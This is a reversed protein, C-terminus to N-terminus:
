AISWSRSPSARSGDARRGARLRVTGPSRTRPTARSSRRRAGRRVPAPGRHERHRRHRRVRRRRRERRRPAGRGRARHQRRRPADGATRAAGGVAPQADAHAGAHRAGLPARAAPRGRPGGPRRLRGHGCRRRVERRLRRVARDGRALEEFLENQFARVDEPDLREGLATFGSLDAFLVTVQRRDAERDPRVPRRSRPRRAPVERRGARAAARTGRRRRPDRRGRFGAGYRVEPLVRLRSRLRVRVGACTAAAAARVESLVRLGPVSRLRM